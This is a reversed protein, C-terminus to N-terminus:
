PRQESFMLAHDMIRANLKALGDALLPERHPQGLLSKGLTCVQVPRINSSDLASLSVDAKQVNNADGARELDSRSPQKRADLLALSNQGPEGSVEDWM